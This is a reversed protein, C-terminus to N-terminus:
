RTRILNDKLLRDADDGTKARQRDAAEREAVMRDIRAASRKSLLLSAATLCATAVAAVSISLWLAETM